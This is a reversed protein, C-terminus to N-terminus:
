STMYTGSNKNPLLVVIKMLFTSSVGLIYECHITRGVGKNVTYLSKCHWYEETMGQFTHIAAPLAPPLGPGHAAPEFRSPRVLLCVHGSPRNKKPPPYQPNDCSIHHDSETHRILKVTRAYPLPHTSSCTHTLTLSALSHSCSAM